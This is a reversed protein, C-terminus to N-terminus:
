LIDYLYDEIKCEPSIKRIFFYNGRKQIKRIIKRNLISYTKPYKRYKNSDSEEEWNTYTVFDNKFRINNKNIINIFYHEDPINFKNKFIYLFNNNLFFKVTSRTLLMWQNQKMFNERKFFKKQRLTNFRDKNGIYSKIINNNIELVKNHIYELPYIPICKDSLLIFYENDKNKFAEKFLLLTAKVLSLTGWKTQIVEELCFNHFNTEKDIFKYKNHIYISFKDKCNLLLKYWLKNQSLNTYTLFCLAIKKM